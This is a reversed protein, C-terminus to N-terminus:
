RLQAVSGECAAGKSTEKWNENVSHVKKEDGLAASFSAIERNLDEEERNAAAANNAWGAASDEDGLDSTGALAELFEDRPVVCSEACKADNRCFSVQVERARKRLGSFQVELKKRDLQFAVPVGDARVCLSDWRVQTEKLRGDLRIINKDHNDKSASVYVRKECGLLPEAAASAKASLDAAKDTSGVQPIAGNARLAGATVGASLAQGSGSSSKDAPVKASSSFLSGFFSKKEAAASAKASLDAGVVKPAPVQGSTSVDATAKASTSRKQFYWIGGVTLAVLVLLAVISNKSSM